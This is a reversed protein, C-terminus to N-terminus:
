CCGCNYGFGTEEIDFDEGCYRCVRFRWRLIFKKSQILAQAQTIPEKNQILGDEVVCSVEETRFSILNM